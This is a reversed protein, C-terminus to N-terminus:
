CFRLAPPPKACLVLLRVENDRAYTMHKVFYRSPELIQASLVEMLTQGGDWTESVARLDSSTSLPLGGIVARTHQYHCLRVLWREVRLGLEALKNQLATILTYHFRRQDVITLMANYESFTSHCDVTTCYLLANSGGSAVFSLTAGPSEALGIIAGEQNDQISVGAISRFDILSGFRVTGDKRFMELHESRLKKYVRTFPSVRRLNRTDLYEAEAMEQHALTCAADCPGYYHTQKLLLGAKEENSLLRPFWGTESFMFNHHVSM